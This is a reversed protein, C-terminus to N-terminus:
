ANGRTALTADCIEPPPDILGDQSSVTHDGAPLSALDLRMLAHPIVHPPYVSFDSAYRFGLNEYLRRARLNSEAVDLYLLPEGITRAIKVLERTLMTGVGKGWHDSLVTLLVGARGVGEIARRELAGYGILRGELEAGVVILTRQAIRARYAAMLADGVLDPDNGSETYIALLLSRFAAIHASSVLIPKLEAM